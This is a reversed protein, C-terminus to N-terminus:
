GLGGGLNFPPRNDISKRKEKSQASHRPRTKETASPSPRPSSQSKSRSQFQQIADNKHKLQLLNAIISNYEEIERNFIALHKDYNEKLINEVEPFDTGALRLANILNAVDKGLVGRSLIDLPNVLSGDQGLPNSIRTNSEISQLSQFILKLIKIFHKPHDNKQKTNSSEAVMELKLESLFNEQRQLYFVKYNKLISEVFNILESSFLTILQFSKQLQVYETLSGTLLEDIQL